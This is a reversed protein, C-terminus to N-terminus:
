KPRRRGKIALRALAQINEYAYQLYELEDIGFGSNADRAIQAPTMYDKAIRQLADYYRQENNQKPKRVILQNDTMNEELAYANIHDVVVETGAM